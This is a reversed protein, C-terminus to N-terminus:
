KRSLLFLLEPYKGVTGYYGTRKKHIALQMDEVDILFQPIDLGYKAQIDSLTIPTPEEFTGTVEPKKGLLEKAVMYLMEAQTITEWTYQSFLNDGWNLLNKIYSIVVKKEFAGPRLYCIAEPDFPDLDYIIIQDNASTAVLLLTQIM